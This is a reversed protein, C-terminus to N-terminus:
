RIENAQALQRNGIPPHIELVHFQAPAGLRLPLTTTGYGNSVLETVGNSETMAGPKFIGYPGFRIQGGHTHGALLLSVPYRAKVKEFIFPTHCVFIVSDDEDVKKFANELSDPRFAFYDVGVIKLGAIGFLEVAEDDLVRVGHEELLEALLTEGIERDNNGQVFFVPGIRNLIQLNRRIRGAPVGREVFDGGILVVDASDKFQRPDLRRRHIDSIFLLRFPRFDATGKLRIKAMQRKASHANRYMWMTCAAGLLGFRLFWTM